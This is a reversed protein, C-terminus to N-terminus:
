KVKNTDIPKSNELAPSSQGSSNVNFHVHSQKTPVSTQPKAVRLPPKHSLDIISM